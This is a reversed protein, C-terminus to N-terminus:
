SPEGRPAAHEIASIQAATMGLMSRSVTLADICTTMTAVVADMQRLSAAVLTIGGVFAKLLEDPDGECVRFAETLIPKLRARMEPPTGPASLPGLLTELTPNDV